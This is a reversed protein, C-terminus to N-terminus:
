PLRGGSEDPGTGGALGTLDFSDRWATLLGDHV